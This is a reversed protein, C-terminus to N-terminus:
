DRFIRGGPPPDPTEGLDTLEIWADLTNQMAEALEPLRDMNEPAVEIDREYTWVDKHLKLTTPVVEPM